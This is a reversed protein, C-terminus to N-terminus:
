GPKRLGPQELDLDAMRLRLADPTQAGSCRALSALAFLLAFPRLAYAFRM